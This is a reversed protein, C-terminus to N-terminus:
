TMHIIKGCYKLSLSSESCIPNVVGLVGYNKDTSFGSNASISGLVGINNNSSMATTSGSIGINYSGIGSTGGVQLSSNTTTANSAIIVKGDSTVKLQASAALSVVVFLILFLTKKM